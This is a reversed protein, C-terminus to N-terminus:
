DGAKKMIKDCFSEDIKCGTLDMMQHGETKKLFDLMQSGSYTRNTQPDYLRVSGNVREATIIHGQRKGAWNFELTYIGGDKVNQDLMESIRQKPRRYIYRPHNGDEDVYALNTKYSLQYIEYNNLNPLARVDYGQRRAFYVAVCTQCNHGYGVGSGFFPNCNGNDAKEFSMPNGKKAGDVYGDKHKYTRDPNHRPDKLQAKKDKKRQNAKKQQERKKKRYYEEYEESVDDVVGGGKLANWADKPTWWDKIAIGYQKCLAFPLRYKSTDQEAEPDYKFDNDAM